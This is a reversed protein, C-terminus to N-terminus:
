GLATVGAVSWAGDEGVLTVVLRNRRVQRAGTSDARTEQNVFVLVEARVDTASVVGASVATAEQDVEADLANTRVQAMAAAYEDAFEPTLGERAAAVDRDFSDHHYTLVREGGLSAVELLRDREDAGTLRGPVTAVRDAPERADYAQLGVLVALVTAALVLAATLWPSALASRESSDKTAPGSTQAM